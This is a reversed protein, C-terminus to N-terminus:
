TLEWLGLIITDCISLRRCSCVPVPLRESAFVGDEEGCIVPEKDLSVCNPACDLNLSCTVVGEGNSTVAVGALVVVVAVTVAVVSRVVEVSLVAVAVAVVSAAQAVESPVMVEAPFGVNAPVVTVGNSVIASPDGNKESANLVRVLLVFTSEKPPPSPIDIIPSKELSVRM